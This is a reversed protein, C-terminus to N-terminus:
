ERTRGEYDVVRKMTFIDSKNMKEFDTFEYYKDWLASIVKGALGRSKDSLLYTALDAAKEPPVGGKSKQQLSKNYLDHGVRDPGAALLVELFQTNVAGPAIANVWINHPALEAGLTENLRMIAGKSAVYATFNAIANQGGGSFLIIRGDRRKKMGPLAAQITMVTGMVNIEMCQRWEALPNSEIPGIPGYIAAGCVLGFVPGLKKETEQIFRVNDEEKSVDGAVYMAPVGTEKQITEVTEKLEKESRAFLSVKAGQKACAIAISRGIGRGGGTIAVVKGSLTNQATM